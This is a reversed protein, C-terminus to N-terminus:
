TDQGIQTKDTQSYFGEAGIKVNNREILSYPDLMWVETIRNIPQENRQAARRIAEPSPADCFYFAKHRDPTIYSYIWIVNEQANNQLIQSVDEPNKTELHPPTAEPFIQEVLYRPM